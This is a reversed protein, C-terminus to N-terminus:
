ASSGKMRPSLLLDNAAVSPPPRSDDPLTTHRPRLSIVNSATGAAEAEQEPPAQDGSGHVLAGPGASEAKRAEIAVLEPSAAGAELVAKLGAHVSAAQMRRHLLLVEILARTGAADGHATRAAAWFADHLATFAGEERAQALAASGIRHEHAVAALAGLGQHLLRTVDSLAQAARREAEVMAGREGEALAEARIAEVEEPTFARKPRPSTIVRAGDFVTDFTFPRIEPPKATPQNM